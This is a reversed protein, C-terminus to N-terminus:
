LILKSVGQCGGAQRTISKEACVNVAVSKSSSRAGLMRLGRFAERVNKRGGESM